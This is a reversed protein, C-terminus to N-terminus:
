TGGKMGHCLVLPVTALRPCAEFLFPAGLLFTSLLASTYDGAILEPLTVGTSAAAPDAPTHVLRFLPPCDWAETAYSKQPKVYRPRQPEFRHFRDEAPEM